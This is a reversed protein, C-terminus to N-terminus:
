ANSLQSKYYQLKSIFHSVTDKLSLNSKGGAANNHGGGDFHNRAFENVSFTGISRFSIKIVKEANHEIFIAAFVINKISLAYNVFGETDGKQFNYKDLEKQSLTIYATKYEDLVVLNQLAVGLLQMRNTSNNDFLAQHIAANDIGLNILSAAVNHTTSTTSSFRFSGTDTVIGTYICTAIDKDLANIGGMFEIFHYVMQATSCITVDSYQYTAYDDPQQHHDIMVYPTTLKQLVQELNGVRSFSNFDLTFVLDADNLFTETKETDKEYVLVNDAQPLWKLFDPFDNPVIVQTNHGQKKLFISLALTSGLADGDPNKHGLIAIKRPTNLLEKLAEIEEQKM